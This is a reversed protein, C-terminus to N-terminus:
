ENKNEKILNRIHDKRILEFDSLAQNYGKRFDLGQVKRYPSLTRLSELEAVQGRIYAKQYLKLLKQTLEKRSNEWGQNGIQNHLRNFLQFDKLLEDIEAGTDQNNM